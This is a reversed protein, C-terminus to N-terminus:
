AGAGPKRRCIIARIPEKGDETIIEVLAGQDFAAKVRACQEAPVESVAIEGTMLVISLIARM